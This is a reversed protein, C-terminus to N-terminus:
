AEGSHVDDVDTNGYRMKIDTIGIAKRSRFLCLGILPLSHDIDGREGETFLDFLRPRVEGFAESVRKLYPKADTLSLGQLLKAHIFYASYETIRDIKLFTKVRAPRQAVITDYLYLRM